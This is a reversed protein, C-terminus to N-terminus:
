ISTTTNSFAIITFLQFSLASLKFRDTQISSARNATAPFSFASLQERCGEAKQKLSEEKLKIL